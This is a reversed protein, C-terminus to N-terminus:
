VWVIHARIRGAVDVWGHSRALTVMDDFQKLWLDDHPRAGPLQFLGDPDVLAHVGQLEAVGALAVQAGVQDVGSIHVDFRTFDDPDDLRVDSEPASM